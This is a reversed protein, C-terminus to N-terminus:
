TWLTPDSPLDCLLSVILQDALMDEGDYVVLDALLSAFDPGDGGTQNSRVLLNTRDFIACVKPTLRSSGGM